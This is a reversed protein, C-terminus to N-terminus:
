TDGTLIGEEILTELLDPGALLMGQHWRLNCAERHALAETLDKLALIYTKIDPDAEDADQPYASFWFIGRDIYVRHGRLQVDPDPDWEVNAELYVGKLRHAECLGRARWLERLLKPTLTVRAWEPVEPYANTAEVALYLTVPQTLTPAATEERQLAGSLTEWNEFGAARAFAEYGERDSLGNHSVEGLSLVM